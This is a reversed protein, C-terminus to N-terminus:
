SVVKPHKSGIRYASAITREVEHHNGISVMGAQYLLSAMEDWNLAGGAAYNALRLGAYFLANNRNGETAKEARAIEESVVKELFAQKGASSHINQPRANQRWAESGNQRATDRLNLMWDRVDNIHPLHLIDRQRHVRYFNGSPHISPPALVYQGNGRIEFGGVEPVRVNINDPIDDVRVYLHIGKQSGTLVSKTNECLNPFAAAFQQIAPIGDLDIFVVNHSISGGILGISQVAHEQYWDNVEKLSPRRVTYERWQGSPRKDAKCPILSFGSALYRRAASWVQIQQATMTM